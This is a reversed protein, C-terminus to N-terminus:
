GPSTGLWAIIDAEHDDHFHNFFEGALYRTDGIWVLYFAPEIFEIKIDDPLSDIVALVQQFQQQSEALIETVSKDQYTEYFWANVEDDTKLHAPWPLPPEPEGRQAAQFRAVLNRNWGNLHAFIDKLSWHGAVGPEEMRAPDIQEVFAKWQNNEEQLWDILESKKM